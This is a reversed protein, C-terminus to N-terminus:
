PIPKRKLDDHDAMFQQEADTLARDVAKLKEIYERAEEDYIDKVCNVCGDNCCADPDLPVPPILVAPPAGDDSNRRLPSPHFKRIFIPQLLNCYTPIIQAQAPSWPHWSKRRLQDGTRAIIPTATYSRHHVLGRFGSFGVIMKSKLEQGM